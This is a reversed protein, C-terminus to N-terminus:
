NTQITAWTDGDSERILSASNLRNEIVNDVKEEIYDYNTADHADYTLEDRGRKISEYMKDRFLDDLAPSPVEQPQQLMDFYGRQELGAEILDQTTVCLEVDSGKETRLIASRIVSDMSNGIFAYSFNEYAKFAAVWDVDPAIRSMAGEPLGADLMIGVVQKFAAVDPLGAHMVANWRGPRKFAEELRHHNNTTAIIIRRANKAGSGDLIDLVQSRDDASLTEVDEMTWLVLHGNRMLRSAILEARRFGYLGSGAPIRIVTGRARVVAAECWTKIMTKGGGPEGEFMIGTKSSQGMRIIDDMRELPALVYKQLAVRIPNTLAVHEMKFKSLDQFTYSTDICQGVYISNADAWDRLFEFFGTIKGQDRRRITARVVPTIGDYYVAIYAHDTPQSGLMYFGPLSMATGTSGDHVIRTQMVGQLDYGVDIQMTEAMKGKPHFMISKSGKLRGLMETLAVAMEPVTYGPYEETRAIVEYAENIAAQMGDAAREPTNAMAATGDYVDDEFKVRVPPINTGARKVLTENDLVAPITLTNM